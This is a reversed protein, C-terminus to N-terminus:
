PKLTSSPNLPKPNLSTKPHKLTEPHLFPRSLRFSSPSFVALETSWTGVADARAPFSARPRDGRVPGLQGQYYYYSYYYYYCYCYCYCYYTATGASYCANSWIKALQLHGDSSSNLRPALHGIGNLLTAGAVLSM